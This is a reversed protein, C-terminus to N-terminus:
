SANYHGKEVCPVRTSKINRGTQLDSRMYAPLYRFYARLSNYLLILIIALSKILFKFFQNVNLPNKFCIKKHIISLLGDFTLNVTLM